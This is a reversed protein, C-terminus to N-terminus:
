LLRAIDQYTILIMLILLIAMGVGNVLGNIYGPVRRRSVAEAVSIVIRGGDLAPFPLLNLVALNVSILAMFSLLPVWGRDAAEGVLDAIGVPGAVQELSSGGGTLAERILTTFGVVTQETIFWSTEAGEALSALFPLKLIGAETMSIGVQYEGDTTLVPTVTAIVPENQRVLSLTVSSTGVSAVAKQVDEPTPAREGDEAETSRIGVIRDGAKIGATAAPSDDLVQTVVVSVDTLERGEEAVALTGAMYTVSFLLWALLMNMIVGAALVAVQAYWPKDQFSRGFEPHTPDGKADGNEGFIKVFGGLPLWNLSYTTESNKPKYSTARPPFGLGFEDVRMGFWKAVSFHGLEHVFVLIALVAIFILVTTM